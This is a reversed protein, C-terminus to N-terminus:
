RVRERINIKKEKYKKDDSDESESDDSERRRRRTRKRKSRSSESSESSESKEEEKEEKEEEKEEEEKEEEEETIIFHKLNSLNKFLVNKIYENELICVKDGDKYTDIGYNGSYIVNLLIDNDKNTFVNTKMYKVFDKETKYTKKDEDYISLVAKKISVPFVNVLKKCYTKISPIYSTTFENIHAVSIYILKCIKNIIYHTRCDKNIISFNGDEDKQIFEPRISKVSVEFSPDNIFNIKDDRIINKMSKITKTKSDYEFESSTGSVKPLKVNKEMIVKALSKLNNLDDMTDISDFFKYLYKFQNM